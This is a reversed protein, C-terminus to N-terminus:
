GVQNISLRLVNHARGQLGDMRSTTWDQALRYKRGTSVRSGLKPSLAYFIMPAPALGLVRSSQKEGRADKLWVVNILYLCRKLIGLNLCRTRLTSLLNEGRGAHLRSFCLKSRLRNFPCSLAADAFVRKRTCAAGLSANRKYSIPQM